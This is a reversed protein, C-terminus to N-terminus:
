ERPWDAAFWGLSNLYPAGRFVEIVGRNWVTMWNLPAGMCVDVAGFGLAGVFPKQWKFHKLRAKRGL